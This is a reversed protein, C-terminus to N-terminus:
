SDTERGVSRCRGNSFTRIVKIGIPIIISLDGEAFYMMSSMSSSGEEVTNLEAKSVKAVCGM